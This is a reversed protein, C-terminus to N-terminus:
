WNQWFLSNLVGEEFCISHWCDVIWRFIHHTQWFFSQFIRTILHLYQCPHHPRSQFVELFGVNLSGNCPYYFIGSGESDTQRPVGLYTTKQAPFDLVQLHYGERSVLAPLVGSLQDQRGFAKAQWVEETEKRTPHRSSGGNCDRACDCWKQWTHQRCLMETQSPSSSGIAKPFCLHM